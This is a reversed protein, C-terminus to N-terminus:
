PPQDGELQSADTAATRYATRLEGEILLAPSLVAAAPTFFATVQSLAYRRM